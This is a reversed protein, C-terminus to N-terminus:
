ILRHTHNKQNAFLSIKYSDDNFGIFANQGIYRSFKWFRYLNLNQQSNILDFESLTRFHKHEHVYKKFFSFIYKKVQEFVKYRTRHFMSHFRKIKYINENELLAQYNKKQRFKESVPDQLVAAPLSEIMEIIQYFDKDLINTQFNETNNYTQEYGLRLNNSIDQYLGSLVEKLPLIDGHFSTPSETVFFYIIEFLLNRKRKLMSQMYLNISNLYFTSLDKFDQKFDQNELNQIIWLMKLQIPQFYKDFLYSRQFGNPTITRLFHICNTKIIELFKEYFKVNHENMESIMQDNYTIHFYEPEYKLHKLIEQNSYVYNRIQFISAKTEEFPFIELRTELKMLKHQKKQSSNYLNIADTIQQLGKVDCLTEEPNILQGEYMVIEIPSIPSTYLIRDDVSIKNMTPDAQRVLYYPKLVTYALILSYLRPRDEPAPRGNPKISTDIQACQLEWKQFDFFFHNDIIHGSASAWKFSGNLQFIPNIILKTHYAQLLLSVLTFCTLILPIQPKCANAKAHTFM